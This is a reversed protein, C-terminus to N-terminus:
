LDVVNIKKDTQVYRFYPNSLSNILTSAYMRTPYIKAFFVNRVSPYIFAFASALVLNKNGGVSKMAGAM